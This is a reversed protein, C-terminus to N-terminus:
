VSRRPGKVLTDYLFTSENWPTGELFVQRPERLVFNSKEQHMWEDVMERSIPRLALLRQRLDIKGSDIRALDFLYENGFHQRLRDNSPDLVVVIELEDPDFLAIGINVGEQRALDPQYQVLCFFGLRRGM